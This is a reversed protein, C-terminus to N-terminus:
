KYRYYLQKDCARMMQVWTMIMQTMFVWHAVDLLVFAMKQGPNMGESSLDEGSDSRGHQKGASMVSDKENHQPIEVSVLHM